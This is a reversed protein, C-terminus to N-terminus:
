RMLELQKDAQKSKRYRNVIMAAKRREAEAANQWGRFMKGELSDGFNEKAPEQTAAVKAMSDGYSAVTFSEGNALMARIEADYEGFPTLTTLPPLEVGNVMVACVRGHRFIVSLGVRNLRECLKRAAITRIESRSYTQM